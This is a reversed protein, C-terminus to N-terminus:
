EPITLFSFSDLKLTAEEWVANVHYEVTGNEYLGFIVFSASNEKIEVIEFTDSVLFNDVKKSPIYIDVYLTEDIDMFLPSYSGLKNECHSTFLLNSFLEHAKDTLSVLTPFREDAVKAYTTSGVDKLDFGDYEINSGSFFNYMEIAQPFTETAYIFLDEETFKSSKQVSCSATFFLAIVLLVIIKKKM